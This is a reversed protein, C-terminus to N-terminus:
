PMAVDTFQRSSMQQEILWATALRDDAREVIDNAQEIALRGFQEDDPAAYGRGAQSRVRADNHAWDKCAQVFERRWNNYDRRTIGEAQCIAGVTEYGCLGRLVVRVIDESSHNTAGTPATGRAPRSPATTAASSEYQGAVRNAM